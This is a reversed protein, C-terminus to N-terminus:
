RAKEVIFMELAATDPELSLGCAALVKKVGEPDFAGEHMAKEIDPNWVVSFDYYNTLGTRDLVPQRLGESLGDLMVSLKQHTFHLKGDEVVAGPKEDDGSIKLGPLKSNKVKLLLVDTNRTERRVDYGLQSHIASRLQERANSKGTILFDFGAKSLDPPVIVSLPNCDYAEGITERLSANRGLLRTTIGDEDIRRIKASHDPFHTARLVALDAPLERLKDTDPDFYSDKVAPQREAAM